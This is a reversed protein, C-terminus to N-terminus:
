PSCKVAAVRYRVAGPDVTLDAALGVRCHVHAPCPVYHLGGLLGANRPERQEAKKAGSRIAAGCVVFRLPGCFFDDAGRRKFPCNQFRPHDETPTVMQEVVQSSREAGKRHKGAHSTASHTWEGNAIGDVDEPRRQDFSAHIEGHM